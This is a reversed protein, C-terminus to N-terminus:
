AQAAMHVTDITTLNRPALAARVEPPIPPLDHRQRYLSLIFSRMANNREAQTEDSPRGLRQRPKLGISKARKRITGYHFPGPGHLLSLLHKRQSKNLTCLFSISAWGGLREWQEHGFDKVALAKALAVTSRLPKLEKKVFLQFTQDGAAGNPFVARVESLLAAIQYDNESRHALLGDLKGRWTRRLSESITMSTM